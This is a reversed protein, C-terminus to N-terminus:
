REQDRIWALTEKGVWPLRLLEEDPVGATAGIEYGYASLRAAASRRRADRHAKLRKRRALIRWRPPWKKGAM